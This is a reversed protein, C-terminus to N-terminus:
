AEWLMSIPMAYLDSSVRHIRDGDHLLIGCVFREAVVDRLRRLGKFDGPYATAGAKVEIDVVTGPTRELVLDVEVGDKDRFHSLSVIEDSLAIAKTIEGYVLCELLLGLKQRDRVVDGSGTRTLAALLGSDLFHIKPAKVLRKLESSHWAGIRRILFMQELLALWRNVTKGDVGVRKGLDNMNLLQGAYIAVHNILRAMEDRKGVSAIDSVDRETLTRTYSLLWNRRRSPNSRALAMPYGGSITREILGNTSGAEAMAPFDGTFVRELFQPAATGSIEAQSFPLLEVTEVRGALSDPSISGHFLDVSGTILYRGPRADEDVEKKLALFLNPARQVEDIVARRLNRLFNSPDEQAFM